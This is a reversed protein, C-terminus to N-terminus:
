PGALRPLQRSLAKRLWTARVGLRGFTNRAVLAGPEQIGGRNSVRCLEGSFVFCGFCRDSQETDRKRVQAPGVERSRIAEIQANERFRRREVAQWRQLVASWRPTGRGRPLRVRM